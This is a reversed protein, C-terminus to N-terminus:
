NGTARWYCGRCLGRARISRDCGPTSCTAPRSALREAEARRYERLRARWSRFQRYKHGAPHLFQEAFPVTAALHDTIATVQLSATPQWGSRRPPGDYVGGVGGLYEHLAAVLVRDRAAVTVTFTFRMRPTGTSPRRNITRSSFCGEGAVFGGLAFGLRRRDAFPETLPTSGVRISRA